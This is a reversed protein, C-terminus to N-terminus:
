LLRFSLDQPSPSSSANKAHPCPRVRPNENPDCQDMLTRAVGLPLGPPDRGDCHRCWKQPSLHVLVLKNGGWGHHRCRCECGAHAPNAQSEIGYYSYHPGHWPDNRWYHDFKAQWSRGSATNTPIHRWDVACYITRDSIMLYGPVADHAMTDSTNRTPTTSIFAPHYWHGCTTM